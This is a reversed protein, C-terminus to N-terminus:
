RGLAAGAWSTAAESSDFFAFEPFRSLSLTVRAFARMFRNGGVLAIRGGIRAGQLRFRPRDLYIAQHVLRAIVLQVIEDFGIRELLAHVAM